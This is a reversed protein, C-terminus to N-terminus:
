NKSTGAGTSAYVPLTGNTSSQAGNLVPLETPTELPTLTARITDREVFLRMEGSVQQSHNVIEGAIATSVNREITRRLFRAGFDSDYGHKSLWDLVSDSVRLSIKRRRLGSREELKKLERDAISCIERSALPLFHVIEDFRNLFEFRFHKRLELDVRKELKDLTEETNFGFPEERYIESGANSTAIIILSRCSVTDGSGNIFCGEDMFQLFRDLVNPHSKEFEDLLLVAFPHNQLRETLVGREMAPKYHGPVGFLLSDAGGYQYDAMNFRVLRDRSGFLYDALSKLM